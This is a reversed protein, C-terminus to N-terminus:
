AVQFSPFNKTGFNQFPKTKEAGVTLQSRLETNFGICLFTLMLIEGSCSMGFLGTDVYQAFIHVTCVYGHFNLFFHIM